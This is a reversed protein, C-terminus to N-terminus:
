AFTACNESDALIRAWLSAKECMVKFFMSIPSLPQHNQPCAIVFKEGTRDVRIDRLVVLIYSVIRKVVIKLDAPWSEMEDLWIKLRTGRFAEVIGRRELQVWTSAISLDKAFAPMVDALLLRLPVRITVGTCLSVQLGWPQFQM